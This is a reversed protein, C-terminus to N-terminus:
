PKRTWRAHEASAVPEGAGLLELRSTAKRAGITDPWNDVVARYYFIASSLHDTREYYAGISFEKEARQERISALLLGVGERDAAGPYHRRYDRYREEAEILAAEDYDVGGYSALAAEASRRLALRHYRSQPYEKILRAYELEASVHDGERFAHDAKTKIAPEALRDDPYDVSIEDLIRYALDQGSLFRMGLWKRKVGTLFTEAVVFELRLAESTLAIGGFESLFEQLVLHAKYYHRRGILAEAKAIMAGPYSPDSKGYTKVFRKVGKLARRYKGEKIQVRIVHLDGEPTGPPPPPLEVWEKKEPDYTLTRTRPQDAGASGSTALVMGTLLMWGVLTGQLRIM